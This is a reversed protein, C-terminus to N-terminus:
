SAFPPQLCWSELQGSLVLVTLLRCPFSAHPPFPTTEPLWVGQKCTAESPLLSLPQRDQWPSMSGPKQFSLVCSSTRVTFMVFLISFSHPSISNETHVHAHAFPPSTQTPLAPKPSCSASLHFLKVTKLTATPIHSGHPAGNVTALEHKLAQKNWPENGLAAETHEPGTWLVTRSATIRLSASHKCSQMFNHPNLHNEAGM